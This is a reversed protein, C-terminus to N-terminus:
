VFMICIISAARAMLAICGITGAAIHPMSFVARIVDMRPSRGARRARVSIFVDVICAIVAVLAGRSFRVPLYGFAQVAEFPM